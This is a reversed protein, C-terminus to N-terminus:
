QGIEGESQNMEVQLQALADDIEEILADLEAEDFEIEIPEPATSASDSGDTPGAEVGSGVAPALPNALSAGTEPDGSGSEGGGGIAPDSTEDVQEILPAVETDANEARNATACAATAAALVLALTLLRRPRQM